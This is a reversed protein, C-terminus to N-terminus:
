NYRRRYRRNMDEREEKKQVGVMEVPIIVASLAVVPMIGMDLPGVAMKVEVEVMEVEQYMAPVAQPSWQQDLRPPHLEVVQMRLPPGTEAVVLEHQHQISAMQNRWIAMAAGARAQAYAEPNTITWIRWEEDAEAALQAKVGADAEKQEMGARKRAERAEWLKWSVAILDIDDDSATLSTTPKPPGKNAKLSNVRVCGHSPAKGAPIVRVCGHGPTKLEQSVPHPSPGSLQDQQSVIAAPIELMERGHEPGHCRRVRQGIRRWIFPTIVVRFWSTEKTQTHYFYWFGIGLPGLSGTVLVIECAPVVRTISASLNAHNVFSLVMSYLHNVALVSIYITTLASIDTMIYYYRQPQSHYKLSPYKMSPYLFLLAFIHLIPITHFTIDLLYSPFLLFMLPHTTTPLQQQLLWSDQCCLDGRRDREVDELLSLSGNDHISDCVKMSSYTEEIFNQQLQAGPNAATLKLIVSAYTM